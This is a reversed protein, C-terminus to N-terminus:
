DRPWKLSYFTMTSSSVGKTKEHIKLNLAGNASEGNPDM